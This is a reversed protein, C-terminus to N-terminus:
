EIIECGKELLLKDVWSRDLTGAKINAFTKVENDYLIKTKKIVTDADAPDVFVVGDEDGVVIYGPKVVAGGCCIPVNIEGPGNKYPGNPSVGRAYVPFNLDKLAGSDRISGDVVFGAIGRSMAYRIMIEGCLSNTLDGRGDVVLVDGPQAMDIAKHFLLNDGICAKVTFASGLLKVNNFPKIDPHTCFMRGMNDAINSTAYQGLTEILERSPRQVKTFIRMGVNSM